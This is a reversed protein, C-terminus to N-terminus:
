RGLRNELRQIRQKNDDHDRRAEDRSDRIRNRMLEADRIADDSTYRKSTAPHLSSELQEVRAIVMQQRAEIAAILNGMSIIIGGISITAAVLIGGAVLNGRIAGEDDRIMGLGLISAKMTEPEIIMKDPM